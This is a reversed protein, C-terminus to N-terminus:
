VNQLLKSNKLRISFIEYKEIIVYEEENEMYIITGNKYPSFNLIKNINLSIIENKTTKVEIFM